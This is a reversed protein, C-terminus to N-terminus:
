KGEEPAATEIWIMYLVFLFARSMREKRIKAVTRVASMVTWILVIMGCKPHQDTKMM